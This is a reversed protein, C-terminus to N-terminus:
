LSSQMLRLAEIVFLVAFSILVVGLARIIYSYYKSKIFSKSKDVIFAVAAKSGILLGYFGLLFLAAASFSVSLGEFIMPGGISFWFVYAYPSLLNTIIGRKFAGGRSVAVESTGTRARINELGLYVLYCAGFLSIVGIVLSYKALNSLVFLALLIIASDTILPSVAVKIGERKGYKLTESIILTILPGPSIGEALGLIIGSVLFELVGAM